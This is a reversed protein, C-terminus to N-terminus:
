REEEEKEWECLCVMADGVSEGVGGDWVALFEDIAHGGDGGGDGVGVAGDEVGAGDGGAVRGAM